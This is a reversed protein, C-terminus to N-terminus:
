EYMVGPTPKSVEHPEALRLQRKLVGESGYGESEGYRLQRAGTNRVIQQETANSGPGQFFPADFAKAVEIPNLTVSRGIEWWGWFTPAILLVVIASLLSSGILFGYDSHFVNITATEQMELVQPAPPQSTNRYEVGGAGLSLRFSLENLGSLIDMTPDVWDSACVTPYAVGKAAYSQNTFRLYQSSLTDPLLM